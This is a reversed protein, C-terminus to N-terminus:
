FLERQPSVGDSFQLIWQLSIYNELSAEKELRLLLLASALADYLACHAKSRGEPCHVRALEALEERLRFTAVLNGLSYSDLDRYIGKYIALTDIWPGWEQALGHGTRWDPVIAPLAWELKLFNNEAHRNHAAFIGSKRLDVFKEYYRSFPAQGDFHSADLGHVKQDIPTIAGIPSCVATETHVIRGGDLTAIGYEVVGSSSSGEFDMMHIPRANWYMSDM